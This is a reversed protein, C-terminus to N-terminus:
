LGMDLGVVWRSVDVRSREPLPQNLFVPLDLRFTWPAGLFKKRFALGPGGDMLFVGNLSDAKSWIWGFDVFSRVSIEVRSISLTRSAEVTSSVVSEAGSFGHAYYGRLNADGFLHFRNRVSDGGYKLGFPSTPHRLFPRSFTDGSGAGQITFKEQLPIGEQGSKMGGGLVRVALRFDRVRGHFTALSSLRAFPWDALGGPASAFELVLRGGVRDLSAGVGYSGYFVTVTGPEYLDTYGTDVADTVYFGGKVEHTPPYGYYKSWRLNLEGGGGRVGELVYGRLTLRLSPLVFWLSRGYTIEGHVAGSKTGGTVTLGLRSFDGYAKVVAIGPKFGDREHFWLVPNWLVAYADRPRYNMGPWNFHFRHPPLGSHNNMLNVDLIRNDPDLVVKRPIGPVTFTFEDKWRYEHNTWRTRQTKGNEMHVEVDLPSMMDGLNLIAVTIEYSGDDLKRKSWSEIAYDTYSSQHLWADFFWGLDQGSVEEMVQRFRLENPHKLKWRDFYTQMGAEFVDEGLAYRLCELMLSPKTYANQRYVNYGPSLYSKTAIPSNHPGTMFRIATWQTRDSISTFTWHRRQFGSYGGSHEFDIGYPPYRNELYWRTQFTTFGEDLWPEDVENNGLIGYFWIHGVEHLILGESESGNMVLMPYEMGGGRMAHTVTVQPYPYPGFRTTLWELARETRERVVQSWRSGVSRNFLVHVDIGGWSGHEYVYTPSAVWAFDHVNEARFTVKRRATSDSELTDLTRVWESFDTTTDVTVAEWGPDGQVVVGSAGVIYSAPLDLTVLYNGFEGYFEGIAHFPVNHWGLDDYVVMKPYWQAMDYQQGSYGMRGARKRVKHKWELTVIISDGPTLSPDLPASLITDEIKFRTSVANGPGEIRFRDIRIYSPNDDSIGGSYHVRQFERYKVSGEQFANPYLHMFIHDLTDPSRNVYVISSEGTLLHEEPDLSVDMRYDVWQQWYEQTGASLGGFLNVLVAFRLLRWFFLRNAYLGAEKENPPTSFSESLLSM